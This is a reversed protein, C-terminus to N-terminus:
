PKKPAEAATGNQGELQRLRTTTTDRLRMTLILTCYSCASEPGLMYAVVSTLGDQRARPAKRTLLRWRPNPAKMLSTSLRFDGQLVRLSSSPPHFIKMPPVILYLIEKSSRACTSPFEPSYYIVVRTM